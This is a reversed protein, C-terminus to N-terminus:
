CNYFKIFYLISSKLLNALRALNFVKCYNEDEDRWLPLVRKQLTIQLHLLNARCVPIILVVIQYGVGLKEAVTKSLVGVEAGSDILAVCNVDDVM